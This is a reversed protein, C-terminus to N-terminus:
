ARGGPRRGCGGGGRGRRRCPGRRRRSRCRPAPRSRGVPVAARCLPRHPRPLSSSAVSVAARPGTRAVQNPRSTATETRGTGRPRLARVDSRLHDVASQGVALRRVEQGPRVRGAHEQAGVQGRRPHGRGSAPPAAAEPASAPPPASAPTRPPGTVTGGAPASGTRPAACAHGTEPPALPRDTGAGGSGSGTRGAAGRQRRPAAGVSPVTRGPSRSGTAAPRDCLRVPGLCGRHGPANRHDDNSAGACSQQNRGRKPCRVPPHHGVRTIEAGM